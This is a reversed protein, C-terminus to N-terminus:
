ILILASYFSQESSNRQFNRFRWVNDLKSIRLYGKFKLMSISFKLTWYRHWEVWYFNYPLHEKNGTINETLNGM